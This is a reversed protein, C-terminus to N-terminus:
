RRWRVNARGSIFMFLAVVSASNLSLFLSIINVLRNNRMAGTVLSVLGILYCATQIWFLPRSLPSGIIVSTVYVLILAYPVLLRFLKHSVSQFFIRNKFPNLLWLHRAFLQFNGALTRVKRRFEEEIRSSANDYAIAEPEFVARYGRRVAQLPIEVDDLITDDPIPEILERRVAYIAGTAGLTSDVRSEARRLAKEYRWYLGINGGTHDDPLYFVLEGSVCGVRPDQFNRVLHRLADPRYMQRVDSFVIVESDSLKVAKNIQHPKGHNEADEIYVIGKEGLLIGNTSDTSGDSVVCITLLEQPYDLERCNSLKKGITKEENFVVIIMTVSPLPGPDAGPPPTDRKLGAAGIIILAYLFYTYIVFFLAIWFLFVIM